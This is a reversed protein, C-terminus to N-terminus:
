RAGERSDSQARQPDRAALQLVSSHFLCLETMARGLRVCTPGDPFLFLHVHFHQSLRHVADTSTLFATYVQELPIERFHPFRHRLPQDVDRDPRLVRDKPLPPHAKFQSDPSRRVLMNIM